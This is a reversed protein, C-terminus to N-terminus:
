EVRLAAMPPVRTARRAPVWSAALVAAGVLAVVGAFAVPDTAKVDFLLSAMLRTLALAAVLGVLTGALGLTAGRGLVLRVLDGADAGLATRIGLERTRQAVLYAVVGYIGMAALILATTAFVGVLVLSFRRGALSADFASEITRVSVPLRPDLERVIARAAAATAADERGHVVVSFWAARGPRQRSNVYLMPAPPTESSGERVDGVIGVIRLGRIDGDMNGFQIFKGIPDQNPWQARALSESIVAVHPADPGDGPEFLRGRRLPIGMAQFYGESAVRFEAYGTRGPIKQLREWEELSAIEDPRSMEIFTGDGGGLGALPFTNVLGVGDVGPIARLRALLEDQFRVQRAAAAPDGAPADRVIDLILANTTRYGPDVALLRLFSRALLGAGALLVLTLAVQAVVLADRVRQGGRGGALTRQGQALAGRLDGRAGARLSTALGLAAAAGLSVVLAFGLAAWSVGVNEIRPLNGPNVALLLRVGGLALLSGLAGAALSLVLSEALLQRVLRRRGAGLALRLALERARGAARALQLNSVNACAILLLVGAAGFLVYLARRVRETMQQLLPVVDADSMSTDDGYERKMQRSVASLEARARELPVGPALRAVVQFNHATRSTSPPELERATWVETHGPYDFGPPMVGVVRYTRGEFTLAEAGLDRRAGLRGRWYADSVVAAPVGGPQQEEPRFARGLVPHVGLVDFFERSVMAVTAQHPEGGSLVTAKGGSVVEAMAAFSHTRAQWDVFNPESVQGMRQGDEGVQFLRVIRDPQPYSLPRLLVGDVVSFVATAAGMGLGLTLVAVVTFGPARRLSRVGFRLERALDELM